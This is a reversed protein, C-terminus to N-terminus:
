DAKLWDTLIETRTEAGDKPHCLSLVHMASRLASIEDGTKDLMEHYTRLVAERCDGCLDGNHEM